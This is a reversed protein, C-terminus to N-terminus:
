EPIAGDIRKAIDILEGLVEVSMYVSHFPSFMQGEGSYTTLRVTNYYVHFSYDAELDAKVFLINLGNNVSKLLENSITQM